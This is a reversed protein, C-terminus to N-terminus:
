WQQPKASQPQLDFSQAVSPVEASAEQLSLSFPVLVLMSSSPFAEWDCTTLVLM